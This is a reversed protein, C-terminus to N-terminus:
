VATVYMFIVDSEDQEAVPLEKTQSTELEVLIPNSYSHKVAVCFKASPHLQASLVASDLTIICEAKAQDVDWLTLKCDLSSSLLKRGNRSWSVNTVARTHGVLKRAMSNTDCDWISVTGDWCGVALLTGRRNYACCNASGAALYEEIREPYPSRFSNALM